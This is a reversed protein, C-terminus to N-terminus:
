LICMIIKTLFSLVPFGPLCKKAKEQKQTKSKKELKKTSKNRTHSLQLSSISFYHACRSCCSPRAFAVLVQPPLFFVNLIISTFFSAFIICCPSCTCYHTRLSPVPLPTFTIKIKTNKKKKPFYIKGFGADTDREREREKELESTSDTWNLKHM